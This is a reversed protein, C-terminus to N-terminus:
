QRFNDSIDTVAKEIISTSIDDIESGIDIFNEFDEDVRIASLYDFEKEMDDVSLDHNHDVYYKLFNRLGRDMNAANDSGIRIIKNLIVWENSIRFLLTLM